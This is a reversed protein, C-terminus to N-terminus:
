STATSIEAYLADRNFKPNKDVVRRRLVEEHIKRAAAVSTHAEAFDAATVKTSDDDRTDEQFKGEGIRGPVVPVLADMLEAFMAESDANGYAKEAKATLEKAKEAGLKKEKVAKTIRTEVRTKYEAFKAAAAAKDHDDNKQEAVKLAATTETLKTEVAAKDAELKKMTTGQEAFQAELKALREETNVPDDEREGGSERRAEAFYTVEHNAEDFSVWARLPAFEDGADDESFKVEFLKALGERNLGKVAPNEDGLLAVHDLYPGKLKEGTPEGTLLFDCRFSASVHVLEEDALQQQGKATLEVDSFLTRSDTSLFRNTGRRTGDQSGRHTQKVPPEHLKERILHNTNEVVKSLFTADANGDPVGINLLAPHKFTRFIEIRRPAM